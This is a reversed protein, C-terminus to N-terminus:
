AELAEPNVLNRPREGRLIRLMEEASGIGMTRLSTSSTGAVHPTLLLNPCGHLPHDPPLPQVEFVDLAAGAITGAKLATVVAPTDLIAGRAVNVLLASPKMLGLLRADVMGRTQETLSCAVVVVDSRAFLVDRSVPEVLGEHSANSRSHGLVRMGFGHRAITAVRRGIEGTGLVGLTGGGIEGMDSARTKADKWGDARLWADIPGVQRRLHFLAAFVYEAVAGTNSGPLNAIPIRLATAAAIPVWDLGVGHRVIGRLMPAHELIDDPLQSRVIMGVAEGALARITAAETDPATVLRAHSRLLAEADGHIPATILVLPLSTM